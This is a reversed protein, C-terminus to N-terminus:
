LNTTTGANKSSRGISEVVDRRVLQTSWYKWLTDGIPFDREHQCSQQVGVSDLHGHDSTMQKDALDLMTQPQYIPQVLQDQHDM